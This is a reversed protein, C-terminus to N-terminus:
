WLVSQGCKGSTQLSSFGLVIVSLVLLFNMGSSFTSFVMVSLLRLLFPNFIYIIQSFCSEKIIFSCLRCTCHLRQMCRFPAFQVSPLPLFIRLSPPMYTFLNVFIVRFLIWSPLIQFPKEFWYTDSSFISKNWLYSLFSLLLLLLVTWGSYNIVFSSLYLVIIKFLERKEVMHCFCAHKWYLFSTHWKWVGNNELTLFALFGIRTIHCHQHRLFYPRFGITYFLFM